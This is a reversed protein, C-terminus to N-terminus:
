KVIAPEFKAKLLDQMLNPNPQQNFNTKINQQNLFMWAQQLAEHNKVKGKPLMAKMWKEFGPLFRDIAKIIYDRFDLFSMAGKKIWDLAESLLDMLPEFAFTRLANMPLEIIQIIIDGIEILKTLPGVLPATFNDKIDIVRMELNNRAREYGALSEGFENGRRLNQQFRKLSSNIKEYTLANPLGDLSDAFNSVAKNAKKFAVVSGLVVAALAAIYPGAKGVAALLKGSGGAGAAGAAAAAGGGGGAGGGGTSILKGVPVKGGPPIVPLRSANRIRTKGYTFKYAKSAANGYNFNFKSSSSSSSSNDFSDGGGADGESSPMLPEAVNVPSKGTFSKFINGFLPKLNDRVSRGTKGALEDVNIDSEDPIVGPELNRELRQAEGIATPTSGTFSQIADILHNIRRGMHANNFAGFLDNIFRRRLVFQSREERLVDKIRKIRERYIEDHRKEIAKARSAEAKELRRAEKEKAAAEDKLAKQKDLRDRREWRRQREEENIKERNRARRNAEEAREEARRAREEAYRRRAARERQEELRLEAATQKKYTGGSNGGGGDGSSNIEIEFKDAM